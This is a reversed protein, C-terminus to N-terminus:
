VSRLGFTAFLAAVGRAPLVHWGYLWMSAQKIASRM